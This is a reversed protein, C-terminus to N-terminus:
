AARAATIFARIAAEDKVGPASEVGSSVDVGELRAGGQRVRVIAEAVNAPTLGGSLLFPVAPDMADLLGWDFPRGHGGPYAADKPPKADLLLRDAIGRYCAIQALDSPTAIGLAKMVPRGTLRKIEAVREPTESGHLQLLDPETARLVTDLLADDPDVLLASVIARGRALDALAGAAEPTVYRPSRRHFVLGVMDAHAELAARMTEPTSLGCIKILFGPM